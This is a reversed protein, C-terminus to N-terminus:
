LIVCPDIPRAMAAAEASPPPDVCAHHTWRWPRECIYCWEVGCPCTMHNCGDTRSTRLSCGPCMRANAVQSAFAYDDGDMPPNRHRYAACSVGAHSFRRRRRNRSTTSLDNWPRRCLGCFTTHCKACIMLRGDKNMEQQIAEDNLPPSGGQLINVYAAQVWLHHHNMSTTTDEPAPPKYFLFVPKREHHLKSQRYEPNAIQWAYHCDPAPCRQISSAKMSRFGMALSWQEYRQLDRREDLTTMYYLWYEYFLSTQLPDQCCFMNFWGMWLLCQLMSRGIVNWLVHAHQRHLCSRIDADLIAQGCGMPCVLQKRGNGTM